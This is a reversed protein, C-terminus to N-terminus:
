RFAPASTLPTPEAPPPELRLLERGLPCLELGRQFDMHELQPAPGQHLLAGRCCLTQGRVIRCIQLRSGLHMLPHM